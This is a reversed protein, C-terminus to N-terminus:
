NWMYFFLARTYKLLSDQHKIKSLGIWLQYHYHMKKERPIFVVLYDRIWKELKSTNENNLYAWDYLRALEKERFKDEEEFSTFSKDDTSLPPKFKVELNAAEFIEAMDYGIFKHKKKNIKAPM